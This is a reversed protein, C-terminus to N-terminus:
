CSPWTRRSFRFRSEHEVQRERLLAGHGPHITAGLVADKNGILNYITPVTVGSAEALSRMTLHGSGHKSILERAAELIRDRRRNMELTRKSM